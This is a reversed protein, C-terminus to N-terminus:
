LLFELKNIQHTVNILENQVTSLFYNKSLEDSFTFLLFETNFDKVHNTKLKYFGYYNISPEQFLSRKQDNSVVFFNNIKRVDGFDDIFWNDLLTLPINQYLQAIRTVKSVDIVEFTASFKIFSKKNYFEQGNHCQFVIVRDAKTLRRIADLIIVIDQLNENQVRRPSKIKTIKNEVNLLSAKIQRLLMVLVVYFLIQYQDILLTKVGELFPNSPAVTISPTTTNQSM